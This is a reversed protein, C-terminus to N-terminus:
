DLKWVSCCSRKVEESAIVRASRGYETSAFEFLSIDDGEEWKGGTEKGVYRIEGALVHARQLLGRTDAKCPTGDPALSKAEPHEHYDILLRAFQSPFVVNHKIDADESCNAM